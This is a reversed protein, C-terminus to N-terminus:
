GLVRWPKFDMTAWVDKQFPSSNFEPPAPLPSSKAGFCYKPWFDPAEPFMPLPPPTTPLAPSPVATPPSATSKCVGGRSQPQPNFVRGFLLLPIFTNTASHLTRFPRGSIHKKPTETPIM